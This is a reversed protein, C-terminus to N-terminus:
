LTGRQQCCTFIYDLTLLFGVKIIQARQIKQIPKDYQDMLLGLAEDRIISPNSNSISELCNIASALNANTEKEIWPRNLYSTM